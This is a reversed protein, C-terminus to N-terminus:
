ELYYMRLEEPTLPRDKFCERTQDILEQLPPFDWIRITGDDSSSVIYRNDPSFEAYLVRGQHGVFSCVEVGDDASWVKVISDDSASVIYKGNPSYNVSNVSGDHAKIRFLDQGSTKDWVIITSDSSASVFQNAAPRVSISNISGNHLFALTTYQDKYGLPYDKGTFVKRLSIRNNCLNDLIVGYSDYRFRWECGQVFGRMESTNINWLRMTENISTAMVTGDNREEISVISNDKLRLAKFVNQENATELFLGKTMTRFMVEEINLENNLEISFVSDSQFQEILTKYFEKPYELYMTHILSKSKIDWIKITNGSASMIHNGDKSFTSYYVLDNDVIITDFTKHEIDIHVPTYNSNNQLGEQVIEHSGTSTNNDFRIIEYRNDENSLKKSKEVLFLTQNNTAIQRQQDLEIRQKDVKIILLIFVGIIFLVIFGSYFAKTRLGNKKERPWPNYNSSHNTM